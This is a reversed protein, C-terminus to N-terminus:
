FGFKILKYCKCCLFGYLIVIWRIFWANIWNEDMLSKRQVKLHEDKVGLLMYLYAYFPKFQNGIAHYLIILGVIIIGLINCLLLVEYEM